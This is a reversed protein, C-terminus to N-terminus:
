TNIDEIRIKYEKEDLHAKLIRLHFFDITNKIRNFYELLHNDSRCGLIVSTISKVPLEFLFIEENQNM